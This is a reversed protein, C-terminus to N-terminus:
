RPAKPRELNILDDLQRGIDDFESRLTELKSLNEIAIARAAERQGDICNQATQAYDELRRSIPIDNAVETCSKAFAERM